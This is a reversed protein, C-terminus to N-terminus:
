HVFRTLQRILADFEEDSVPFVARLRTALDQIELETPPRDNPLSVVITRELSRFNDTTM